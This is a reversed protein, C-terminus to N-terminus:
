EVNINNETYTAAKGRASEGDLSVVIRFKVAM